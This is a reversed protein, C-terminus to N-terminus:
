LVLTCSMLMMILQHFPWTKTKLYKQSKTTMKEGKVKLVKMIKIKKESELVQSVSVNYNCGSMIRYLGCRNELNDTQFKGLLVYNFEMECLLYQTCLILAQSTHHLAFYTGKSLKFARFSVSNNNVIIQIDEWAELWLVFKQLFELNSSDTSAVPEADELRKVKGKFLTKVNVVNSWKIIVSM